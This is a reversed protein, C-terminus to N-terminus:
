HFACGCRRCYSPAPDAGLLHRCAPCRWAWLTVLAAVLALFMAAATVLWPAVGLREGIAAAGALEFVAVLISALILVALAIL